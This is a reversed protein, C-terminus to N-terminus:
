SSTLTSGVSPDKRAAACNATSAFASPKTEIPPPETMSVVLAAFRYAVWGASKRV